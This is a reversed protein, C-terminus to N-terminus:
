STTCRGKYKKKLNKIDEEHKEKLEEMEEKLYKEKYSSLEGLLKYEKNHKEETEEMQREHRQKLDKIEEMHKDLLATFDKTYKQRFENFEEAQRRAEEEHKKKMEELKKKYNEELDKREKQEEHRRIREEEKRQNEYREREQEYEEQLKRLREQEKLRRQENERHRKEWWEKRENEWNEQQKRMEERSQGSKIKKELDKLKQEWEQKKIEEQERRKRDEKRRKEQEKEREEREKNINEEMEKLQKVREKEIEAKQEEMKRTVAAMEEEHKRRLEEEKQKMEEEKEKLVRKVEKQIAAEAEQFMESTYCSGGNEKVMNNSKTMLERVQTRDTENNNFVQYRGGCDSILKKVFNDSNEIYSEITTNKLDDGRTFIIIIFNGSNKGFYKKILKVSDKEEQTFRGIQLVLLFVHPGPSLLSICKVLEEQIEDNSLSTDFLGPTDVVVVPRGDIEASAKQCFKTVSMTCVISKFHEEGLITNGTASKGSGTRGILVMRLPERSQNKDDDGMQSRQKVGQLEAKLNSVREIQAKTFMDKTFSRSGRHRMKEVADLLEPIQQKDKINVVVSRGGCSQCLEQINKNEKVFNGVAPATPDSEVTFLIMTIDIVPSSFTNQITELEGKDEDTLPGVPLVLIFAHVGEPDCLSICRFSEEMVAEQPKGYLAPLEVLSVWRGCVEGQHKVCESSTSVSHLETQGLIAKAASTKGAGRRGCLVLNLSPKIHESATEETKEMLAEHNDELMKYHRGRCDKLLENVSDSMGIGEHTMVVMSYRFADQGFLSLIFKLTKRNEETFDSPKVLLLLVNPGPRCLSVCSKVEKRVAEESLSFWDPTKVVTLPKGRWEGSSAVCHSTPSHKQHHFVQDTIISNGLETKKDDSKGLLVIRFSAAAKVAESVPIQTQKQKPRQHGGPLTITTDVSRKYCVHQGNNKNVVLALHILLESHELNKLKLHRNQCKRILDEHRRWGAREERSTSTSILVLSHDFSQNSFLQLVRCLRKKQEETFDEPQLVLLFVHPGPDCLRVCTEVHETLKHESIDPLLLDPTNVLVIHKGKLQGKVRQCYDAEETSFVPAGMILNGVSNRESCSNGLLVVRLELAQRPLFYNSNRRKFTQLHDSAATAM